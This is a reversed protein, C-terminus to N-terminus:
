RNEFLTYVTCLWHLFDKWSFIQLGALSPDCESSGTDPNSPAYPGQRMGSPMSGPSPSISAPSASNPGRQLNPRINLQPASRAGQANTFMGQMRGSPRYPPVPGAGHGDSGQYSSQSSTSPSRSRSNDAVHLFSSDNMMRGTPFLRSDIQPDLDATSPHSRHGRPPFVGGRDGAPAGFPMMPQVDSSDYNFGASAINHPLDRGRSAPQNSFPFGDRPNWNAPQQQFAPGRLSADQQFSHSPPTNASMQRLWDDIVDNQLQSDYISLATDPPLIASPPLSMITCDLCTSCTDPNTCSAYASSSPNASARNHHVCGPCACGDGCGCLSPLGNDFINQEQQAWAQSPGLLQTQDNYAQANYSYTPNSPGSSPYSSSQMVHQPTMGHIAHKYPKADYHRSVHEHPLGTSPNHVPGPRPLVPRLEAIRALIQSSTRSSTQTSPRGLMDPASGSVASSHQQEVTGGRRNRPGPTVCNCPDGSKCQHGYRVGGHDSDSSAGETLSQFAVSAELAQPLGNPFAAGEFGPKPGQQFSSEAKSECICKVHVQKTKRLERCHDCQTVPRGKKKIEFLPRDTHRCASSRHGKICTECAYKKSSVIM